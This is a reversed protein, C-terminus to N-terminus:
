LIQALMSTIKRRTGLQKVGAITWDTIEHDVFIGRLRAVQEENLRLRALFYELETSLATTEEPLASTKAGAASPTAPVPLLTTRVLRFREAINRGMHNPRLDDLGIMQDTYLEKPVRGAATARTILETIAAREYSIGSTFVIVPDVFLELTLPFMLDPPGDEEGVDDDDYRAPKGFEASPGVKTNADRVDNSVAVTPHAMEAQAAACEMASNISTSVPASAQHFVMEAAHASHETETALREVDFYTRDASVSWRAYLQMTQAHPTPHMSPCLM